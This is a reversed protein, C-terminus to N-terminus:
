SISVTSVGIKKFIPSAVLWKGDVQVLTVRHFHSHCSFCVTLLNWLEHNKSESEGSGDLHHVMLRNNGGRRWQLPFIKKRCVQCTFRDRKLAKWWNGNWKNARKSGDRYAYERPESSPRVNRCGVSCYKKGPGRKQLPRFRKSCTPCERIEQQTTPRQSNQYSWNCKHSCFKKRSDNTRIETGCSLCDLVFRPPVLRRKRARANRWNATRCTASCFAQNSRLAFFQQDCGSCVKEM